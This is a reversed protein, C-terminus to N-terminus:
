VWNEVRLGSVRQFERVNNTVTVLGLSRAHGAIMLDYAGIPTGAQELEARIQASHFAARQDYPLVDLRQIFGEIDQLNREIHASKEAGYALEMLSVSSLCLQGQHRRFRERAVEPRNKMVYIAINTDLMYTIV